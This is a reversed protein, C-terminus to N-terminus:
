KKSPMAIPEFFRAGRENKLRASLQEVLPKYEVEEALNKTEGPDNSHDFLMRAELEDSENRWETYFYTDKILTFGEKWRAVAIGDGENSPDVMMPVVSQGELHSPKRLGTLDCLTPYLDVLEAIGDIRAPAVGPAKVILPTHLSTEFVSHKCWLGHERLNYGHDGWLVVITNNAQGSKELANLVYGIQADTSSVCAYYGHILTRAYDDSVAGDKPVDSYSRLEGWSHFAKQPLGDPGYGPEPLEFTELDYLDWYKKPANFPLHPKLFGVAMFFPEDTKALAELENVAMQALRGDRYAVDAVDASEYAPPKAGKSKARRINEGLAYDKWGSEGIADYARDWGEENDDIDHYIKGISLTTYGNGKFFTNMPIAGPTENELRTFYQHYRYFGPRVGGM